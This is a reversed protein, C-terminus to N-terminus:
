GDLPTKRSQELAGALERWLEVNSTRLRVATSHNDIKLKKFEDDSAEEALFVMDHVFRRWDPGGNADHLPVAFSPEAWIASRPPAAAAPTPPRTRVNGASPEGAPERPTATVNPPQTRDSSRPPLGAPSIQPEGVQAILAANNERAALVHSEGRRVAESFVATLAEAAVSLTDYQIIEGDCDVVSFTEAESVIAQQVPAPRGLDHARPPENPPPSFQEPYFEAVIDEPEDGPLVADAPPALMLMRRAEEEIHTISVHAKARQLAIGHALSQLQELDGPYELSVIYVLVASGDPATAQKPSLLLNLPINALVGGTIQRLFGLQSMLGVVSNYSTTRLRWVGGVGGAGDILVSLSGNMKCKDAGTYAPDSRICPCAVQRPEVRAKNAMEGPTETMRTATQGDGSCWLARGVYCGLRTPFNLEPDDYILRVPIRTCNPGLRAMLAADPLFNGDPGRELTTVVFHDLKIPRNFNTAKAPPVCRV